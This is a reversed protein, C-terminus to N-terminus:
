PKKYIVEAYWPTRLLKKLWQLTFRPQALLMESFLSISLTAHYLFFVLPLKLWLVAVRSIILSGLQKLGYLRMVCANLTFSLRRLMQTIWWASILCLTEDCVLGLVNRSRLLHLLLRPLPLFTMEILSVRYQRQLCSRWSNTGPLKCQQTPLNGCLFWTFRKETWRPM